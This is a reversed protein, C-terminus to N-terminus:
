SVNCSKRFIKKEILFSRVKFDKDSRLFKFLILIHFDANNYFNRYFKRFFWLQEFPYINKTLLIIIKLSGYKNLRIGNWWFFKTSLTLLNLLKFDCSLGGSIETRSCLDLAFDVRFAFQIENGNKLIFNYTQASCYCYINLYFWGM